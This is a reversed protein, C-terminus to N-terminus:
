RAARQRGGARPPPDVRPRVELKTVVQKSYDILAQMAVRAANADRDVIANLITRHLELSHASGEPNEAGIRFSLRLASEVVRGLAIFLENGSAAIIGRHFDLDPEISEPGLEAAAMRDFADGIRRFDDLKARRAALYAAMPEVMQRMEYLKEIALEQEDTELWWGLVDPDLFNWAVRPRVFTGAKPRADVLGMTTLVRLAERLVTRSVALQACLEDQGPLPGGAPYGGSVIRRGLDNVVRGHLGRLDNQAM